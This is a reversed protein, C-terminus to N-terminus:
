AKNLILTATTGAKLKSSLRITGGMKEIVMKCYSLGLGFGKSSHLNGSQVRYFNDFVKQLQMASMGIGNDTIELIVNHENKEAKIHIHPKNDVYKLSNEILNVISNTLHFANGKVALNTSVELEVTAGKQEILLGLNTIAATLSDHLNVTSLHITLANKNLAAVELIREVHNNLKEKEEKIITLYMALNEQNLEVNPHQLSDAALSISALPTKFEHTMNNMFDSKIQSIKKHKMILKISFAFVVLIVLILTISLAIMAGMGAWIRENKNISLDLRYNSPNLIDTTFLPIQYENTKTLQKPQIAYKKKAVDYVGWNTIEGLDNALFENKLTTAMNISDLREHSIDDILEIQLREVFAEMRVNEETFDYTSIYNKELEIVKGSVANKNSLLETITTDNQTLGNGGIVKVAVSVTSDGIKKEYTYNTDSTAQKLMSWGDLVSDKLISLSRKDNLQQEADAVALMVNKDILEEKESVTNRIWQYQIFVIGCLAIAM